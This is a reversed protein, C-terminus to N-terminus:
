IAGRARALGQRAPESAPDLTLAESFLRAAASPNGTNLELLALNQYTAPDQPDLALSAEFAKRANGTDGQTAYIAGLLNQARAFRPDISLADRAAAQAPGFEGRMFHLAAAYYRSGPRQPFGALTTVLPGLREADGVDAYISALQEVAAGADPHQQVAESAVRIAADFAGSAAHLKSLAVRPPVLDPHTRVIESLRTTAEAQHGTAVAAEVFVALADAREPARDVATLAADYAPEFVGARRLMEARQALQEGTVQEWASAVAAPRASSQALDRLRVVNDRRAVTHLARPASFELAMRDDTQVATGSAFRTAADDAGLFMSLIGFPSTVAVTQLDGSVDRNTWPRALQEIKPEMPDASGVLMLDGDGALWLTAHPFVSVFTAVVSQLDTSSIDYTNVWQCIVGHDALRQRAASFFEKTFLAAVGAMWPNSPESVIVDYRKTSLALHTRGDAVILHTRPDDIPASTGATFLRSAEVVEPSIELVDVGDVAHTLASALTVGSGLGIICIEKPDGHLLIPIHALLKQTLMDGSTSADVKGDIALSLSGTLRKVSVTAVAGDRYYIM